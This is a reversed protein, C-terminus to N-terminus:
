AQLMLDLNQVAAGSAGKGLNDLSAILNVQSGDERACVYLRMRDTGAMETPDIRALGDTVENSVVEVINQDAYHVTLAEHISTRTAANMAATHLPINVLMGQSFRGVNPTFVPDFALGSRLKIEPVHPPALVTTNQKIFTQARDPAVM